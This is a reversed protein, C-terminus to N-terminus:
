HLLSYQVSLNKSVQEFISKDLATRGFSNSNALSSMAGGKIIELLFIGLECVKLFFSNLAVTHSSQVSFTLHLYLDKKM